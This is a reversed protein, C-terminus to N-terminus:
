SAYASRARCIDERAVAKRPVGLVAWGPGRGRRRRIDGRDGGGSRSSSGKGVAGYGHSSRDAVSRRM